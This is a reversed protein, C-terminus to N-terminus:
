SEIRITGDGTRVRLLKGVDGMTARLSRRRQRRSDRDEGPRDEDPKLMPHNARVSGDRTEADLEGNFSQPLTLVVSGDGTSLDWNDAMATEADLKAGISGDGTKARLITPAGEFGISGDGTELNVHGAIKDLRIAGDGTRIEVDGSLRSATVSGDDTRLSITGTLDEARIAGDGSRARLTLSRPVVVRLRASPSINFGITVGRFEHRSPGKVRLSITNGKQEAEITIQDILTQETARKEVEVEIEQKDWSHVEIAGDFTDLTLDPAGTVAFTRTERVSLGESNVNVECAALWASAAVLAVIAALPPRIETQM